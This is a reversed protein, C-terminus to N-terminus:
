PVIESLSRTQRRYAANRAVLESHTGEDEARGERVFVIKDFASLDDLDHAIVIVISDRARQRLTEMVREVGTRDLGSFPEDVILVGSPRLFTRALCLRRSEGGSLGGGRTGLETDLAQPLAAVFADAGAARLAVWLEEDTAEPRGLLLNERVTEGFLVTDQLALAYSARLAALDHDALPAGDLLVRGRTPDYLRVALAAVTSKGSGSRGFVGTLEGRRFLADFGRLADVGDAYAFHVDEFRLERPAAAPRLNAAGSRVEVPEDLITLLREGSAIAKAVRGSNKSTSRVPKLLSRVYALFVLLEGTTLLGQSVRLAGYGLAAAACSGFLAEVSVTLRASLRSAKFESRSTRGNQEAFVRAIRETAGLSQVTPVAALAEHVQDALEGEKKRQKRAATTLKKSLVAVLVLFLPVVGLVALTLRWDVLAMAVLTGTILLTRTAFAVTADVLMQRVLPVDGLVRVLLDGTKHRSHFRPSLRNLHAFLRQRLTSTFGQGVKATWIAALYDLLSDLLVIGLAAAAGWGIIYTASHQSPKAHTLASDVIWKVPWPRLIELAVTALTALGVLVLLVVHARLDQVFRRGVRTGASLRGIARQIM